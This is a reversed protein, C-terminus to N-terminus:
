LHKAHRSGGQDTLSRTGLALLSWAPAPEDDAGAMLRRTSLSASPICGSTSEASATSGNPGMPHGTASLAAIRATEGKAVPVTSRSKTKLSKDCNALPVANENTGSQSKNLDKIENARELTGSQSGGEPLFRAFADDFQWLGYVHVNDEYPTGDDRTMTLRTRYPKIKLPALLRALKNQTIPKGGRGFEAWPRGEIAVLRTALEASPLCPRGKSDKPLPMKESRDILWIRNIDTILLELWSAEDPEGDERGAVAAKRARVPWEGGAADAIALLPRLNDAERNFVGALMEPDAARIAEANDQAWRAVKRALTDLHDTRDLRFPEISESALRRKLDITVSRDTLTGPLQGILAIAVAGYTKFARVEHDDGVTRLVQGGRRHGSNLVGRLEENERLFTDAEDVLLTPQYGEIVRFIASASSNAAPLPCKVLRALVDLLTTKGCRRTASRTALRPSILFCDILYSHVVWLAALDRSHDAMVVHNRIAKAVDTLLQDGAVRDPWPEVEPFSV